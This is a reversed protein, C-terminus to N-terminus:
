LCCRRQHLYMTELKGNEDRVGKITQQITDVSAFGIGSPNLALNFAPILARFMHFSSDFGLITPFTHEFDEWMLNLQRRLTYRDKEIATRTYLEPV